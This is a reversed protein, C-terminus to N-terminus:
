PQQPLGTRPTLVPTALGVFNLLRNDGSSTVWLNGSADVAVGYPQQLQADVGLGTAPSLFTGPATANSDTLIAFNNSAMNTVYIHGGGDVAITRPQSLRPDSITNVPIGNSGVQTLTSNTSDGVWVNAGSDLALSDPAAAVTAQRLTNGQSDMHTLTGAARDAIWVNSFQDAVLAAPQTLLGAGFGNPGSLPNGSADLLSVTSQGVNGVWFSGNPAASIAVPDKVGAVYGFPQSLITGSSAIETVSGFQNPSGTNSTNTVWLNQSADVTIATSGSLGAGSVGYQWISAGQPLFGSVGGNYNAVWVNGTSDVALGDPAGLGGGTHSISMTWDNPASSLAGGFAAHSPADNFLAAVHNAPHTVISLAAQFTDNPATSSPATADTFLTTCVSSGDSNVCDALIDALTILKAAEITSNAPLTSSPSNGTTSDALMMATSMANRLGRANTSTTGVNTVSSAFPALAWAAAVTTLENISISQVSALSGCDGLAALLALAHNNVNGPLGPNGGTATIYVQSNASPCTYDGSIDFAGNSDTFVPNVLLATGASGNGTAGAAYLQISTNAVPQQGGHVKGHLTVASPTVSEPQLRGMSCGALAVSASAALISALRPLPSTTSSPKLAAPRKLM